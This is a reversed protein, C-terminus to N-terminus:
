GGVFEVCVCLIHTHHQAQLVGGGGGRETVSEHERGGRLFAFLSPLAFFGPSLSSQSFGPPVCFDPSLSSRTPSPLKLNSLSPSKTRSSPPVGVWFRVWACCSSRAAALSILSASKAASKAAVKSVFSEGATGNLVTDYANSSGVDYWVSPPLLRISARTGPLPVLLPCGPRFLALSPALPPVLGLGSDPCPAPSSLPCYVACVRREREGDLSDSSSTGAILVLLTLM